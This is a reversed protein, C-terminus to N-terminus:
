DGRQVLSIREDAGGCWAERGGELKVSFGYENEGKPNMPESPDYVYVVKGRFNRRLTRHLIVEDGVKIPEGTEPYVLPKM